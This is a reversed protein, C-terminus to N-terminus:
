RRPERRGEVLVGRSSPLAWRVDDYSSVHVANGGFMGPAVHVPCTAQVEHYVTHPDDACRQSFLDNVARDAPSINSPSLETTDPEGTAEAYM